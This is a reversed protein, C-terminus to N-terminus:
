NLCVLAYPMFDFSIIAMQNRFVWRTVWKRVIVVEFSSQSSALNQCVAKMTIGAEQEEVVKRLMEAQATAPEIRM